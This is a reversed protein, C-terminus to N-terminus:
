KIAVEKPFLIPIKSLKFDKPNRTIFADMGELSLATYYQVADEFDKFDSNLAQSIIEKNVDATNILLTLDKLIEICRHHPTNKRIIYYINTYSLASVFLKVKNKAGYDLIRASETYYPLRFDIVDIIINTDLFLNKM